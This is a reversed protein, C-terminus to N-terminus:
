GGMRLTEFTEALPRLPTVTLRGAFSPGIDQPDGPCRTAGPPSLLSGSHAGASTSMAGLGTNLDCEIQFELHNGIDGNIRLDLRVDRIQVESFAGQAMAKGPLPLAMGILAIRGLATIRCM